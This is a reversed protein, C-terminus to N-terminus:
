NDPSTCFTERFQNGIKGAKMEQSYRLTDGQYSGISPTGNEMVQFYHTLEHAIISEQRCPEMFSGVYIVKAKPNFLGIVEKLYTDMIESATEDGYMGAWRKFSKESGKRFETQLEKRQVIRIEPMPYDKKIELENAVWNYIEEPSLCLAPGPQVM